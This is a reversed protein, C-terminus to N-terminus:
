QPLPRAGLYYESLDQTASRIDFEAHNALCIMTFRQAPARVIFSKFGRWGGAHLAFSIGKSEFLEWGFGYHLTTGDNLKGPTLAAKIASASALREDYLAADWKQLDELTSFISGCGAYYKLMPIAESVARGHWKREYGIARKSSRKLREKDVVFTNTMGLPDFIRVQMFDPYSKGSIREIIQSLLFYGGNSYEWKEGAAFRPKPESAFVKLVETLSAEGDRNRGTDTNIKMESIMLGEYNPVGSTHHLLHRIHIKQAYAPFEPFFRSLPDEYNLKGEEALIVIGMATFQKSMSGIMSITESSFPEETKLNALGYGQNFVVKGDRIVMIAAGPGDTKVHKRMFADVRTTPGAWPDRTQELSPADSRASIVCVSCVAICLCVRLEKM